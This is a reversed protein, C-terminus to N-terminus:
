CAMCRSSRGPCAGATRCLRHNARPQRALKQAPGAGAPGGPRRDARWHRASFLAPRFAHGTSARQAVRFAAAPAAGRHGSAEGLLGAAGLPRGVIRCRSFGEGLPPSLSEQRFRSRRAVVEPRWAPLYLDFASESARDGDKSARPSLASQPERRSRRAAASQVMGSSLSITICHGCGELGQCLRGLPESGSQRESGSYVGAAADDVRLDVRGYDRCGTIGFPRWRWTSSGARGAEADLRAPCTSPRRCTPPVAPLGVQRRLDGAALSERRHQGFQIECIPLVAPEDLAMIGANFERGAIYREVLVDGYRAQMDAVQRELAAFDSVVSEQSIGLSGDEKAPKVLLPGAALAVECSSARCGTARRLTSFRASDALGAGQLLWKTRAKDRVLALCERPSGTLPLGCLEILGAVNAEGGGTGGLGECLNLVVDAPRRM